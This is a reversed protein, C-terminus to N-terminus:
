SIEGKGTTLIATMMEGTASKDVKAKIIGKKGERTAAIIAELIAMTNEIIKVTDKSVMTPRLGLLHRNGHATKKHHILNLINVTAAKDRGTGVRIRDAPSGVQIVGGLGKWMETIM